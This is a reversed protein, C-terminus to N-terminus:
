NPSEFVPATLDIFNMELTNAQSEEMMAQMEAPMPKKEGERAEAESTFYFAQVFTGDDGWAALGGIIDPRSDMPMSAFEASMAREREVDNVRGQMVQVFGADDSGGSGVVLVDDYNAFTAEGDLASAMSSWWEGQEPRDSNRQAAEASEFRVLAIVSDDGHIGWTTGLWGDAGPSLEALWRDLSEKLGSRDSVKGQIVQLYM